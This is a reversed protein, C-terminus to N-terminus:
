LAQPPAPSSPPPPADSCTRQPWGKKRIGEGCGAPRLGAGCRNLSSGYNKSTTTKNEKKEKKPPLPHTLSNSSIPTWVRSHPLEQTHTRIRRKYEKLTTAAMKIHFCKAVSKLLILDFKGGFYVQIPTLITKISGRPRGVM